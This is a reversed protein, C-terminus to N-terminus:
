KPLVQTTNLLLICITAFISVKAIYEIILIHLPSFWSSNSDYLEYPLYWFTNLSFITPDWISLEWAQGKGGDEAFTPTAPRFTQSSDAFSFPIKVDFFLLIRSLINSTFRDYSTECQSDGAGDVMLRTRSIRVNAKANFM